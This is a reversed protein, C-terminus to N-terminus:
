KGGAFYLFPNGKIGKGIRQLQGHFGTGGAFTFQPSRRRPELLRVAFPPANQERELQGGRISKGAENPTATPYSQPTSALTM